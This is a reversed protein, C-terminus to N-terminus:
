GIREVVYTENIDAAADKAKVTLCGDLNLCFELKLRVSREKMNSRPLNFTGLFANNSVDDDEGQYVSISLSRGDGVSRYMRMGYAPLMSNKEIIRSMRNGVTRVGLSHATVDDLTVPPEAGEESYGEYSVAAAYITAGEAIAETVNVDLSLDTRNFYEKVLNQVGRLMTSGGVLLVVDIDDKNLEAGNLADDLPPYMRKFLGSCLREFEALSITYCLDEGDCFGPVDVESEPESVLSEKAEKCCKRLLLLARDTITIDHEHERKFKDVMYNVLCTDFDEGGLHGDGAHSLVSFRRGDTELVTVDFTGGGLDFVLMKFDSMDTTQQKSVKVGYAIAAATPENIIGSVTLGAAEAAERTASRQLDNFYAPVTIVASEIYDESGDLHRLVFSILKDIIRASIETPSFTLREGLYQVQCYALGSGNNVIDYATNRDHERVFTDGYSRGMLRKVGVISNKPNRPLQKMASDGVKLEKETYAVCSNTAKRGHENALLEATGITSNGKGGEHKWIGVCSYTTGLDIGIYRGTM